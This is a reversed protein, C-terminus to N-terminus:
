EGNKQSLTSRATTRGENERGSINLLGRLRIPAEFRGSAGCGRLM